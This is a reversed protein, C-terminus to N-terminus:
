YYVNLKDNQQKLYEYFVGSGGVYEEDTNSL